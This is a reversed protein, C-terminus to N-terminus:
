QLRKQDTKICDLDIDSFNEYEIVLNIRKITIKSELIDSIEEITEKIRFVKIDKIFKGGKLLVGYDLMDHIFFEIFKAASQLRM